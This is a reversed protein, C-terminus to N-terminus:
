NRKKKLEFLFVGMGSGIDLASINKSKFKKKLFSLVRKVRKKNDSYKEKLNTIFKFRKELNKNDKYIFNFYRKSYIENMKYKHNSFLHKCKKCEIIERYYKKKLFYNKEKLPKKKYIFKKKLNIFNCNCAVTKEKFKIYNRLFEM